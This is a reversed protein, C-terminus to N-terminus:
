NINPGFTTSESEGEVETNNDRRENEVVISTLTQDRILSGKGPSDVFCPTPRDHRIM